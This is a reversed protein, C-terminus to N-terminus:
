AQEVLVQNQHILAQSSSNLKITDIENKMDEIKKMLQLEIKKSLGEQIQM